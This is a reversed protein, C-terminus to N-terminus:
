VVWYVSNPYSRTFVHTEALGALTAFDAVRGENGGALRVDASGAMSSQFSYIAMGLDRHWVMCKWCNWFIRYIRPQRFLQCKPYFLFLAHIEPRMQLCNTSMGALHVSGYDRSSRYIRRRWGGLENQKYGRDLM